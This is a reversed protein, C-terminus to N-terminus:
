HFDEIADSNVRNSYKGTYGSLRLIVIEIYWLALKWAQYKVEEDFEMVEHHTYGNRLRTLANPGDKPENQTFQKLAWQQM